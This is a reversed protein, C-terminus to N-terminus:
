CTISAGDTAAELLTSLHQGVAKPTKDTITFKLTQQRAYSRGVTARKGINSAHTVM